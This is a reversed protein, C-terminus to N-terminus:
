SVLQLLRVVLVQISLSQVKSFNFNSNLIYNNVDEFDPNKILFEKSILYRPFYVVTKILKKEFSNKLFSLLNNWCFTPLFQDHALHM